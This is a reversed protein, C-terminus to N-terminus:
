YLDRWNGLNPITTVLQITSARARCVHMISLHMVFAITFLVPIFNYSIFYYCDKKYIYRLNVYNYIIENEDCRVTHRVIKVRYDALKADDLLRWCRRGIFLVTDNMRRRPFIQWRDRLIILRSSHNAVCGCIQWSPSPSYFYRHLLSSMM